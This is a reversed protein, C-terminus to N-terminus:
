LISFLMFGQIETHLLASQQNSVRVKSEHAFYVEITNSDNNMKTNTSM